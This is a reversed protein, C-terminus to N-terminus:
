ATGGHDRYDYIHDTFSAGVGHLARVAATMPRAAAM